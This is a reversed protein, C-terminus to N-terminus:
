PGGRRQARAESESNTELKGDALDSVRFGFCLGFGLPGFRSRDRLGILRVAGTHHRAVRNATAAGRLLDIEGRHDEYYDLGM